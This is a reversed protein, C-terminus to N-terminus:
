YQSSPLRPRVPVLGPSPLNFLLPGGKEKTVHPNGGGQHCESLYLYPKEKSAPVTNDLGALM